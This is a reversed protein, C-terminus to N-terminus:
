RLLQFKAIIGITSFIEIILAEDEHTVAELYVQGSRGQLHARRVPFWERM